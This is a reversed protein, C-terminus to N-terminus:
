KSLIGVSSPPQTAPRDAFRVRGWAPLILLPAAEEIVIETKLVHLSDCTGPPFAVSLIDNKGIVGLIRQPQDRIVVPLLVM